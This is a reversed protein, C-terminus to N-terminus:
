RYAWKLLAPTVVSTVAAMAVIAAFINQDLVGVDLGLGAVVLAVEMRAMMGIGVVAPRGMGKLFLAAPLGCGVVKTLLAVATIAVTLVVTESTFGSLNVQAGIIGFFLPAFIMNLKEVYEGVNKIVRSSAVSMGVVFAGIIPSLGVIGAIGAVGFLLATSVAEVSGKSKWLRELHLIRPVILVSAVLLAVFLGLTQAVLVAAVGIGVTVGGASVLNTVVSLVAVALIDDVVAAGLILRAEPSQIKGLHSLTQVSIAISTAALATAILMSQVSELGLALFVGYGVLFPVAVGLSGVTMSAVGGRIFESPTIELGLVFLIVVASIEGLVIITPDLTFLSRGEYLPLGGLAYPGVIIGALLEGLVIPLGVRQFLEALLKAVFLLLALSIIIEEFTATM